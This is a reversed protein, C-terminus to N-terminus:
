EVEIGKQAQEEDIKLIQCDLDLTGEDQPIANEVYERTRM